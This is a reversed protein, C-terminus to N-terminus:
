KNALRYCFKDLSIETLESIITLLISFLNVSCNFNNVFEYGLLTNYKEWIPCFPKLTNEKGNQFLKLSSQIDVNLIVALLSM